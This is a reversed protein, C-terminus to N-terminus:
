NKAESSALFHRNEGIMQLLQAYRDAQIYDLSEPNSWTIETDLPADKMLWSRPVTKLIRCIMEAQIDAEADYKAKYEDCLSEFEELDERSNGNPNLGALVKVYRTARDVSAGWERMFSRGVKTFDFTPQPANRQQMNSKGM